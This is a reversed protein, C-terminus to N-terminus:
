IKNSFGKCAIVAKLRSGMSTVLCQTEEKTLSQRSKVAATKLQQKNTPREAKLKAKLVIFAHQIPNFIM